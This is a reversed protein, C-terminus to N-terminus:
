TTIYMISIKTISKFPIYNVKKRTNKGIGKDMRGIGYLVSDYEM